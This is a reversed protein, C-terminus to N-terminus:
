PPYKLAWVKNSKKKLVCLGDKRSIVDVKHWLDSGVERAKGRHRKRKNRKSKSIPRHTNESLTALRSSVTQSTRRSVKEPPPRQSPRKVCTKIMGVQYHKGKEGEQKM